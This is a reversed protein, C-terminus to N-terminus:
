TSSPLPFHLSAAGPSSPGGSTAQGSANAFAGAPAGPRRRTLSAVEPAQRQGTARELAGVARRPAERPPARPNRERCPSAFTPGLAPRLVPGAHPPAGHGGKGDRLSRPEDGDRREDQGDRRGRGRREARRRDGRSAALQDLARD